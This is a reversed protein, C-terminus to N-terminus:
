AHGAAWTTGARRAPTASSPRSRPLALSPLLPPQVAGIAVGRQRLYGYLTRKTIHLKAAIQQVSLQGERYLTDAALATVEAQRALGRPRGGLRGRARAATL